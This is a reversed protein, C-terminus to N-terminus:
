RMTPTSNRAINALCSYLGTDETWTFVYGDELSNIAHITREEADCYWCLSHGWRVIFSRRPHKNSEDADIFSPDSFTWGGISCQLRVQHLLERLLALADADVNLVFPHLKQEFARSFSPNM